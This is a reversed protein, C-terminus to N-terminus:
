RCGQISFDLNPKEVEMVDMMRHNNNNHATNRIVLHAERESSFSHRLLITQYLVQLCNFSQPRSRGNARIFSSGEGLVPHCNTLMPWANLMENHFVFFLAQEFIFSTIKWKGGSCHLELFRREKSDTIFKTKYVKIIKNHQAKFCKTCNVIYISISTIFIWIFKLLNM